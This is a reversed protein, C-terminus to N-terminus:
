NYIGCTRRNSFPMAKSLSICALSGPNLFCLLSWYITEPPEWAEEPISALHGPWGDPKEPHTTHTHIDKSGGHQDSEWLLSLGHKKSIKAFIIIAGTEHPSQSYLIFCYISLM